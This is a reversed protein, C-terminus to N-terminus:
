IDSFVKRKPVGPNKFEFYIYNLIYRYLYRCNIRRCHNVNFIKLLSLVMSLTYPHLYNNYSNNKFIIFFMIRKTHSSLLYDISFVQNSYHMIEFDILISVLFLFSCADIHTQTHTYYQLPCLIIFLYLYM